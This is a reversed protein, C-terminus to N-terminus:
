GPSVNIRIVTSEAEEKMIDQIMGLALDSVTIM